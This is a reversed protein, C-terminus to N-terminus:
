QLIGLTNGITIKFIAINDNEPFIMLYMSFFCKIKNHQQTMSNM